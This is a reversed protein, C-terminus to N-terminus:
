DEEQKDSERKQELYKKVDSIDDEIEYNLKFTYHKDPKWVNRIGRETITWVASLWDPNITGAELEGNEIHLYINSKWVNQIKVQNELPGPEYTWRASLWGDNIKGLELERNEIHLCVNPQDPQCFSVWGEANEMDYAIMYLGFM